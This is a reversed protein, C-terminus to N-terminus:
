ALVSTLPDFARKEKKTTSLEGPLSQPRKGVSARRRDLASEGLTACWAGRRYWVM